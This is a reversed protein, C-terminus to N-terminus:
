CIIFKDNNECIELNFNMIYVFYYDNLIFYKFCFVNYFIVYKYVIIFDVIFIFGYVIM